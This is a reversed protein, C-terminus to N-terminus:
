FLSPNSETLPLRRLMDKWPVSVINRTFDEDGWLSQGLIGQLRVALALAALALVILAVRDRRM